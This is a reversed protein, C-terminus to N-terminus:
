GEVPNSASSGPALPGIVGVSPTDDVSVEVKPSSRQQEPFRRVKSAECGPHRRNWENRKARQYVARPSLPNLLIPQTSGYRVYADNAAKGRFPSIPQALENILGRLKKALKANM